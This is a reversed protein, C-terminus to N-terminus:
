ATARRRRIVLVSGGLALLALGAAILGAIDAGTVSLASGSSAPAVPDLEIVGADWTPDIGESADV